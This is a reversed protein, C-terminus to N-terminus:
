STTRIEHVIVEVIAFHTAQKADRLAEGKNLSDGAQMVIDLKKNRIAWHWRNEDLPEAIPTLVIELDTRKTTM